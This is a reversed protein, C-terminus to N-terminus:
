KKSRRKRKKDPEAKKKLRKWVERGYERDLRALQCGRIDLTRHEGTPRRVFVFPLCLAVVKLPECEEDRPRLTIRVPEDPAMLGSDCCWFWSPYEYEVALVAVYAGRRLDDPAVRRALSTPTTTCNTSV